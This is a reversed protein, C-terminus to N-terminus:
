RVGDEHVDEMAVDADNDHTPGATASRRKDPPEVSSSIPDPTSLLMNAGESGAEYGSANPDPSESITPGGDPAGNISSRISLGRSGATSPRHVNASSFNPFYSDVYRQEASGTDPLYNSTHGSDSLGMMNRWISVQEANTFGIQSRATGSRATESRMTQSRPRNGADTLGVVSRWIEAQETSPLASESRATESRMTGLRQTRQHGVDVKQQPVSRTDPLSANSSFSRTHEIDPIGVVSRWANIQEANARAIESRTTESRVSESRPTHQNGADVDQQAVSRTGPLSVNSSISGTRGTDPIGVVSRWAKIKETNTSASEFRLSGSRQTGPRSTGLRPVRPSRPSLRLGADSRVAESRPSDRDRADASVTESFQTYRRKSGVSSTDSQDRHDPRSSSDPGSGTYLFEGKATRRRKKHLDDARDATESLQEKRDEEGIRASAADVIEFDDSHVDADDIKVFGDEGLGESPEVIDSPIAESVELCHSPGHRIDVAKFLQLFRAVEVERASRTPSPIDNPRPRAAVENARASTTPPLYNPGPEVSVEIHQASTTPPLETPDASLQRRPTTGPSSNNSKSIRPFYEKSDEAFILLDPPVFNPIPKHRFPPIPNYSQSCSKSMLGHGRCWECPSQCGPLERRSCKQFKVVCNTCRPPRGTARCNDEYRGIVSMTHAALGQLKRALHKYCRYWHFMNRPTYNRYWM